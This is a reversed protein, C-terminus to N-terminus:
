KSSDRLILKTPVLIKLPIERNMELKQFMLEVAEIGMFESHIKVTSLSPFTFKANPIDNVSIISLDNPINIGNENFAKLAGIAMSDNAIFLAEPIRNEQIIKSALNYGDITTFNGIYIDKESIVGKFKGYERFTSERSDMNVTGDYATDRGGIFGIRKYGVKIFYNIVNEVIKRLDVVVSDFKEEDPCSDVFIIDDSISNLDQIERPTFWGVAIIGDVQSLKKTTAEDIDPYYSKVMNFGRKKCQSEIGFKISRYYSDELEVKESHSFVIGIKYKRQIKKDMYREAITKYGLEKAINFIKVRTEDKVSINKDENLVRSITAPSVGVKEAIEKLTAM